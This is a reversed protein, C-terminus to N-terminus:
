TAAAGARDTSAGVNAVHPLLRDRSDRAGAQEAELLRSPQAKALSHPRVM